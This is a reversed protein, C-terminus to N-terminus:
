AHSATARRSTHEFAREGGALASTGPRTGAGADTAHEAGVGSGSDSGLGSGSGSGLRCRWDATRGKSAPRACVPLLGQALAGTRRRADVCGRRWRAGLRELAHASHGIHGIGEDQPARHADGPLRQNHSAGGLRPAQLSCRSVGLRSCFSDRGQVGM